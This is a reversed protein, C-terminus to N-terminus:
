PGASRLPPPLVSTPLSTHVLAALRPLDRPQRAIVHVCNGRLELPNGVAVVHWGLVRTGQLPQVVARVVGEVVADCAVLQLLGGPHVHGIAVIRVLAIVHEIQTMAAPAVLGRLQPGRAVRTGQLNREVMGDLVQRSRNRIQVFM